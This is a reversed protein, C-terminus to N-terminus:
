ITRYNISQIDINGFYYDKNIYLLTLIRESLFALMRSQTEPQIFELTYKTGEYLELIIPFLVECVKNFVKNHGFFMNCASLHKIDLLTEVKDPSLDIKGAKSAYMLINLGIQGHHDMFQTAISEEFYFPNSVYLTNEKIGVNEIESEIWFRRYQNTGVFEHNTNKWIYYLGTLDGLYRNLHSINDGSDDFLYNKGTYIEKEQQTLNSAGCILPKQDYQTHRPERGKISNCYLTLM